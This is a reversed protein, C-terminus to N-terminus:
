KMIQHKKKEPLLRCVLKERSQLESTHEESRLEGQEDRVYVARTSWPRPCRPPPRSGRPRPRGRCITSTSSPSRGARAPSCRTRSIPLADHLAPPNCEPLLRPPRLLRSHYSVR